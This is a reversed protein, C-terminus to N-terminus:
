LAEANDVKALPASTQTILDMDCRPCQIPLMERNIEELKSGDVCKGGFDNSHIDAHV